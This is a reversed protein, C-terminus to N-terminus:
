IKINRFVHYCLQGETLSDDTCFTNKRLIKGHAESATQSMISVSYKRDTHNKKKYPFLIDQFLLGGSKCKNVQIHGQVVQIARGCQRLFIYFQFASSLM